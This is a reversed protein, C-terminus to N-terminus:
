DALYHEERNEDMAENYGEGYGYHYGAFLCVGIIAAMFLLALVWMM